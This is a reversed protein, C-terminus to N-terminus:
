DKRIAHGYKVLAVFFSGGVANGLTAWLLVHGFDALTTGQGSFVAALVEVTGAVVHHLGLLGIVTTIFWVVVIQSITDRGAAVLWSLLGMLWGALIGSVLIVSGDHHTMKHALEGFTHPRISGFAPGFWSVAAAFATAGLLNGVYVVAWLRALAWTGARGHLVPLVALTTQETFLESRGLVVFLFGISYANAVLLERVPRPLEDGVLTLVTAMLLLSFGIELGAGLASVFVRLPPSELTKLGQVIEERLIEQAPKKSEEEDGPQIRLDDGAETM